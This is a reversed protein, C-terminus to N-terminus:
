GALFPVLVFANNVVILIYFPILVIYLGTGSGRMNKEAILSVIVILLLMGAKVALHVLPSTVVGAMLPNLEMGGLLLIFQTTIIDLLFLAALIISFEVIRRTTVEDAPRYDPFAPLIGSRNGQAAM